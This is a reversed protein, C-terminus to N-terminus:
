RAGSSIRPPLSPARERSGSPVACISHPMSGPRTWTTRGPRAPPSRLCGSWCVLKALRMPANSGLGSFAPILRMARHFRMWWVSWWRWRVEPRAGSGSWGRREPSVPRRWCRRSRRQRWRWRRRRWGVSISQSAATMGGGLRPWARWRLARWVPGTMRTSRCRWRGHLRTARPTRRARSRVSTTSCGLRSCGGSQLRPM